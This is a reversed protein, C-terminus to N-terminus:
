SRSPLERDYELQDPDYNDANTFLKWWRSQETRIAGRLNGDSFADNGIFNVARIHTVPGEDVKFILDVRNQDLQKVQPTVTAAFRGSRRYVEVIRQVDAQVRAATFVARPKAQLDKEVKDQKLAKLGEFVVRNIIPNEVVSVVLDADKQVIQVDAFLGTAFLTKLSLDIRAPDATDGPQISLYSIVTSAEVRQNGTVQIQRIVKTQAQAAAASGARPAAGAPRAPTARTAPPAPAPSTPAPGVTPAPATPAEAAAPAPAQTATPPQTTSQALAVNADVLWAGGGAGVTAVCSVAGLLVERFGRKM